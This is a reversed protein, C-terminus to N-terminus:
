RDLLEIITSLLKLNEILNKNRFKKVQYRVLSKSQDLRFSRPIRHSEIYMNLCKIQKILYVHLLFVLFANIGALFYIEHWKKDYIPGEFDIRIEQNSETCPIHTHFLMAPIISILNKGIATCLKCETSRVILESNMYPWGCNTAM